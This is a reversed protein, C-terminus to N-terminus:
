YRKKDDDAFSKLITETMRKNKLVLWTQLGHREFLIANRVQERIVIGAQRNKNGTASKHGKVNYAKGLISKAVLRDIGNM